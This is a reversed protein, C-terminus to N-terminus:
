KKRRRWLWTLGVGLVALGSPEPVPVLSVNDIDLTVTTVPWYIRALTWITVKSGTPIITTEFYQWPKEGTHDEIVLWQISSSNPDTGGTLDIGIRREQGDNVGGTGGLQYYLSFTHPVGPVTNNVVQYVGGRFSQGAIQGGIIRQADGSVGPVKWFHTSGPYSPNVTGSDWTSWGNAVTEGGINSFGGEFDGNVVLNQAFVPLAFSALVMLVAVLRKM